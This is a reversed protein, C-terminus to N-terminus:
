HGVLPMILMLAGGPLVNAGGKYYRCKLIDGEQNTKLVYGGRVNAGGPLVKTIDVNCFIVAGVQAM